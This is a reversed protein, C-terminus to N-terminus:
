GTPLAHKRTLIGKLDDISLPDTRRHLMAHCNACVPILDKIPDVVYNGGCLHIPKIHHVHIYGDGLAGYLNGFSMGCARCNLGYHRLCAKRAEPNREYVNVLVTSAAGEVFHDPMQEPDLVEAITEYGDALSAVYWKESLTVLRGETLEPIFEAISAPSNEGRDAYRPTGKMPFTYIGYNQDEVLRLHEVAQTYGSQKRGALYKWDTDLILGLTGAKKDQWLGFIVFRSSHNVFSWSWTWNKCDAGHSRIFQKRNM